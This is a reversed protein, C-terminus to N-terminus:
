KNKNSLLHPKARLEVVQVQFFHFDLRLNYNIKPYPYTIHNKLLTSLKKAKTHNMCFCYANEIRILAM